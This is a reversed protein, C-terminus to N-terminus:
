EFFLSQIGRDSSDEGPFLKRKTKVKAKEKVSRKRAPFCKANSVENLVIKKTSSLHGFFAFSSLVKIM